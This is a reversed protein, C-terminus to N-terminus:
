EEGAAKRTPRDNEFKRFLNPFAKRYMFEATWGAAIAGLVISVIMASQIPTVGILWIPLVFLVASGIAVVAIRGAISGLWGSM